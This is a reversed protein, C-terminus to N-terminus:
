EACSGIFFILIHEAPICELYRIRFNSVILVITGKTPGNYEELHLDLQIAHM